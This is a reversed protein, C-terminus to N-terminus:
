EGLELDELPSTWLDLPSLHTPKAPCTFLHNTDHPGGGCDPCTDTISADLRSMYHNLKRCWGSRLQALATRTFRPLQIEDKSVPPPYGGLVVNSRYNSISCAVSEKHIEKAAEKFPRILCGSSLYGEGEPKLSLATKRIRLPPNETSTLAHNPHGPRHCRAM